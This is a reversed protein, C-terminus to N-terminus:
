SRPPPPTQLSTPTTSTTSTTGTHSAVAAPLLQRLIVDAIGFARQGAMQNAMLGDAMDQMDANTPDKFVSDDAALERTGSRMQKLMQSIFFGEFQVAAATAKARYPADAPDAAAGDAPGGAKPNLLNM